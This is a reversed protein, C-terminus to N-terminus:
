SFPPCPKPIYLFSVVLVPQNSDKAEQNVICPYMLLYVVQDTQRPRLHLSANSRDGNLVDGVSGLAGFTLDDGERPGDQPAGEVDQGM